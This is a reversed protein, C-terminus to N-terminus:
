KHAPLYEFITLSFYVLFSYSSVQFNEFLIMFMECQFSQIEHQVEGVNLLISCCGCNLNELEINGVFEFKNIITSM